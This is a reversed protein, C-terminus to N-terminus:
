RASTCAAPPPTRTTPPPPATARRVMQEVAGVYEALHEVPVSVDEIVPIPKLRGPHQMLLGLGAKRVSWVDAQQKPDLM